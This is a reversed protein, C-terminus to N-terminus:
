PGRTTERPRPNLINRSQLAMPSPTTPTLVTRALESFSIRRLSRRRCQRCCGFCYPCLSSRSCLSSLPFLLSLYPSIGLYRLPIDQLFGLLRASPTSRSSHCFLLSSTSLYSFPASLVLAASLAKYAVTPPSPMAYDMCGTKCRKIPRSRVM